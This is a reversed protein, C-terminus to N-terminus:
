EIQEFKLTKHQKLLVYSFNLLFETLTDDDDDDNTICMHTDCLFLTSQNEIGLQKQAQLNIIKKTESTTRKDNKKNNKKRIKNTLKIRISKTVTSSKILLLLFLLSHQFDKPCDM